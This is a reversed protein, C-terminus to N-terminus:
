GGVARNVRGSRAGGVARRASITGPSGLECTVIFSLIEQEDRKVRKSEKFKIDRFDEMFMPTAKLQDMLQKVKDFEKEAPDIQSIASISFTGRDFKLEVIAMQEPLREAVATFKKTWLVRDDDLRALALVDEKSVNQGEKQLSDIQAIIHNLQYEKGRVMGRLEADNKYTLSGVTLLLASIVILTIRERLKRKREERQAFGEQRNLNIRFQRVM